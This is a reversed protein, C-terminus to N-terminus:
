YGSRGQGAEIRDDPLAIRLSSYQNADTSTLVEVADKVEGKAADRWPWGASLDIRFAGCREVDGLDVAIVPSTGQDRCLGCRPGIGGAPVDTVVKINCVEGSTRAAGFAAALIAGAVMLRM